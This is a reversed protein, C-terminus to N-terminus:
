TKNFWSEDILIDKWLYYNKNNICNNKYFHYKSMLATIAELIENFDDGFSRLSIGINDKTVIDSMPENCGVIVPIKLGIAQYLRNPECYRNNPTSDSYFIISFISDRLLISTDLIDIMDLFLVRNVLINGYKIKLEQYATDLIGGAVIIKLDTSELISAVSNFPYRDVSTLGQVYAYKHDGIWSTITELHSSNECSVYYEDPYNRISVNKNENLALGKTQLYDIRYRNAHLIKICKREIIRFIYKRYGRIFSLPLEHLDWIYRETKELFPFLFTAEDHVWVFDFNILYKRISFYLDLSKAFLFKSQPLLDRSKLRISTYHVGYSTIGEGATNNGLVVFIEIDAFRLLSLCEKRVRDEHELTNTRIVIAIKKKM